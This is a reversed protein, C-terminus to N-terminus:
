DRHECFHGWPVRRGCHTCTIYPPVGTAPNRDPVRGERELFIVAGAIYNIAGLLERVQADKDLRKSEQIKKMAQYLLGDPSNLLASISQMPQRDFPLNNAHRAAGKGKAAQDFARHLVSSLSEYGPTNM